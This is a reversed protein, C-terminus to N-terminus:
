NHFFLDKSTNPLDSSPHYGMAISRGVCFLIYFGRSMNSKGFCSEFWFDWHELQELGFHVKLLMTPVIISREQPSTLSLGSLGDALSVSTSM